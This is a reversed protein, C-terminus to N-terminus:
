SQNTLSERPYIEDPKFFFEIEREASEPSDSGHVVNRPMETGLTARISFDWIEAKQPDTPGMIERWLAITNEGELVQILVPGSCMFDMCGDFFDKGKHEAYFEEAQERTLRIMKTAIIRLDHDEIESYIEGISNKAVGDPKIISLTREVTM